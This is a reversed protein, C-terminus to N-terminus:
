EDKNKGEYRDTPLPDPYYLKTFILDIKRKCKDAEYGGLGSGIRLIADDMSNINMKITLTTNILYLIKKRADKLILFLIFNCVVNSILFCVFCWFQFSSM